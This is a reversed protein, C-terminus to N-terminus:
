AHLRRHHRLHRQDHHRSPTTLPPAATRTSSSARRASPSCRRRRQGARHLRRHRRHRADIESRHSFGLALKDTPQSTCASSGASAPTTAKSRRGHRREEAPRVARCGAVAHRLLAVNISCIRSGFDIAKSLTAEAREYVMGVGFSLPRQRLRVRRVADPRRDERGIRARHLPRGLRRRVRDEPRVARQGHRRRDRRLRGDPLGRVDGPRRDIDGADGGNGGTLPAAAALRCRGAPATSTPPRPRDATVDAQVTTKKFTSM